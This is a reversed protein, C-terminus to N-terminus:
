INTYKIINLIESLKENDEDTLEAVTSEGIYNFWNNEDQIKEIKEKLSDIQEKMKLIRDAEKKLNEIHNSKLVKVRKM